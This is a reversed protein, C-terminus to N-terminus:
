QAYHLWLYWRHKIPKYVVTGYAVPAKPECVSLDSACTPLAEVSYVFGKSSDGNWASAQDYLFQIQSSTKTFGNPLELERFLLQYESWRQYTIAQPVIDGWNKEGRKALRSERILVPLGVDSQAMSALRDFAAEHAHFFSIMEKDPTHAGCGVLLFALGVCLGCAPSPTPGHLTAANVVRRPRKTFRGPAEDIRM